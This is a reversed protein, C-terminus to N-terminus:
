VASARVSHREQHPVVPALPHPPQEGWVKDLPSDPCALLSGGAKEAGRALAKVGDPTHLWPDYGVREGPKLHAALWDSPPEDILHRYEFLQPDTEARVATAGTMTTGIALGLIVKKLLTQAKQHTM